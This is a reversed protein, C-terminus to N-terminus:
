YRLPFSVIGTEGSTSRRRESADILDSRRRDNGARVDLMDSAESYM